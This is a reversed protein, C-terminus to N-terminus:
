LGTVKDAVTQILPRYETKIKSAFENLKSFVYEPRYWQINHMNIEDFRGSIGDNMCYLLICLEEETLTNLKSKLIM